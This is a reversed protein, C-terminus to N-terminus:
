PINVIAQFDYGGNTGANFIVQAIGSSDTYRTAYYYSPSNDLSYYFDVAIGARAPSGNNTVTANLTVSSDAVSSTLVVAYQMDVHVSNSYVYFYCYAALIGGTMVALLVLPILMKRSMKM